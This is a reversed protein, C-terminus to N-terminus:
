IKPLVDGHTKLLFKWIHTFVISFNQGLVGQYFLKARYVLVFVVGGGLVCM